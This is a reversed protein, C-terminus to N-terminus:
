HIGQWRLEALYGQSNIGDGAQELDGTSLMEVRHFVSSEEIESSIHETPAMDPLSTPDVHAAFATNVTFGLGVNKFLWILYIFDAMSLNRKFGLCLASPRRYNTLPILSSCSILVRRRGAQEKVLNRSSYSM